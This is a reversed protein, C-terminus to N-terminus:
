CLPSSSSLTLFPCPQAAIRSLVDALWAQPDVGIMKVTVILSYMAAAVPRGKLALRGPPGLLAAGATALALAPSDKAVFFHSVRNPNGLM